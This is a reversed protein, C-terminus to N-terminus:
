FKKCLIMTTSAPVTINNRNWKYIGQEDIDEGNGIIWWNDQPIDLSIMNRNGNHIILFRNWKDGGANDDITFAVVCAQNPYLFHLHKQILETTALHLAPHKRRLNIIGKYYNYLSFDKHKNDWDLQNISDPSQYTNHVGKKTRALEEGGYIFPVGQSTMIISQALKNFKVLEIQATNEPAAYVLKDNLCLDDHCSVYNISQYPENAWPCNSYNILGYHIQSHQTAAVTGFKVTEDYGQRGCAFGPERANSWNGKLADRLDDSFVGIGVTQNVHQKVARQEYPLPSDGGTWGEGYIFLTPDIKDLETRILRMTETDHIGMLDFRFGDVHYENAWFLVSDIIYKRVMARESATENGCGSANSYSGDANHRYYYGPTIMSFASHEWTYTHNYVVDMIIRIGNKHLAQVMQKFERIRCYPDYPNTSYSGEPVNYNLPDYGWNYKNDELRSENITAFDASPMLHIHTIGLEKLHDIGTTQGFSNKTGEETFALFKGKNRMGSNAATSFDRVHIEYLIIDTFNKLEPRKDAEWGEPNTHCLELIAGRKGNVGVAKTYPGPTEELWEDDFKVQFTYFKNRLDSSVFAEWVGNKLKKMQKTDIATGGEGEEYIRLIADEIDPSWIKFTTKAPTYSIGLDNGTYVPYQEFSDFHIPFDFNAM